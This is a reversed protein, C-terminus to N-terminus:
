KRTNDVMCMNWRNNEQITWWVCTEDTINKYNGSSEKSVILPCLLHIVALLPAFSTSLLFPTVRYLKPFEVM